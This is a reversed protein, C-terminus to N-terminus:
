VSYVPSVFSCRNATPKNARTSIIYIHCCCLLGLFQCFGLGLFDELCDRLLEWFPVRV